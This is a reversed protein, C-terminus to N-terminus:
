SLKFRGELNTITISFITIANLMKQIAIVPAEKISWPQNMNNKSLRQEFYATSAAM